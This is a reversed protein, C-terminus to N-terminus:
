FLGLHLIHRMLWHWEPEGYELRTDAQFGVKNGQWISQETNQQKQANQKQLRYYRTKWLHVIASGM